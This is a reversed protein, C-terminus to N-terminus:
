SSMLVPIRAEQLVHESADGFILRHLRSHGYGGMILLDCQQSAAEMLLCLGAPHEGDPIDRVEATVGHRSLVRAIEHGETSTDAYTHPHEEITVVEAFAADKLFPLGDHLARAAERSPKWAALVRTGIPQDGWDNPLLLLPRGSNAVLDKQFGRQDFREREADPFLAVTLDSRIASERLEDAADPSRAAQSRWESICGTQDAAAKFLKEIKRDEESVRSSFDGITIEDAAIAIGSYPVFAERTHLGTLHADFRVALGCAAPLLRRAAFESTLCALITKYSM